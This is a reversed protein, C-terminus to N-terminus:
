RFSPSLYPGPDFGRLEDLKRYSAAAGQDLGTTRAGGYVLEALSDVEVELGGLEESVSSTVGQINTGREVSVDGILRCMSCM